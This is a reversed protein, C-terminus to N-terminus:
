NTHDDPCKGHEDKWCFTCFSSWTTAKDNGDASLQHGPMHRLNWKAFERGDRGERSLRLVERLKASRLRLHRTRWTGGENTALSLASKSDGYINFSVSYGLIELLPDLSEAQQLGESYGLIEAEATSSAIFPQRGSTWSIPARGLALIVGTVSRHQEHELSFSSDVLVDVQHMSAPTQYGEELQWEQGDCRDYKLAYDVSGALYKLAHNGLEIVYAPRKHLWRSMAGVVYSLDPRTRTQVWM